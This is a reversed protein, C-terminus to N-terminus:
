FTPCILFLLYSFIFSMLSYDKQISLLLLEWFLVSFLINDFFYYFFFTLNIQISIDLNFPRQCLSHFIDM